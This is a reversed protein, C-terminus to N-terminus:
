ARRKEKRWKEKHPEIAVFELEDDEIKEVVIYSSKCFGELWYKRWGFSLGVRMNIDEASM